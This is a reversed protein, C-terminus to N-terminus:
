IENKSHRNNIIDLFILYHKEYFEKDNWLNFKNLIDFMVEKEKDNLKNFDIDLRNLSKKPAFFVFRINLKILNNFLETHPDFEEWGAIENLECDQSYLNLTSIAPKCMDLVTKIDRFKLTKEDINKLGLENVIFKYTELCLHETAKIIDFRARFQVSNVNDVFDNIKQKRDDDVKIGKNRGVYDNGDGTTQIEKESKLMIQYKEQLETIRQANISRNIQNLPAFVSFRADLEILDTFLKEYSTFAFDKQDRILDHSSFVKLKELAPLCLNVIEVLKEFEINKQIFGNLKSGKKEVGLETKIFNYISNALEISTLKLDKVIESRSNSFVQAVARARQETKYKDSNKVEQKKKAKKKKAMEVISDHVTADWVRKNVKSNYIERGNHIM